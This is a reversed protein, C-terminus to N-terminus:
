SASISWDRAYIDVAPSSETIDFTSSDITIVPNARMYNKYLLSIEAATLAAPYYVIRGVVADGTITVEEFTDTNVFHRVVWNNEGSSTGPSGNTYFFDSSGFQGDFSLNTDTNLKYWIEITQPVEDPNPELGILLSGDLEIGKLNSYEFLDRPVRYTGDIDVEKDNPPWQSNSTIGYVNLNDIYSPDNTIGGEFSVRIFLRKDTPDMGPTIVSTKIGRVVETWTTGDLSCEVTAGEGDWDFYVGYISTTDSADLPFVSLWEGATSIGNLTLPVLQDLEVTVNNLSGTRWTAEDTLSLTNFRNDTRLETDVVNGGFLTHANPNFNTASTHLDTIASQDLATAFFSIDNIAVSATSSTQGSYLKADTAVYALAQQDATIVAEAVLEGNIFLSNKERNHTGFVTFKQPIQLDYSARAESGGVYKTVFSVVTGDIILGDYKGTNGLIQIEGTTPSNGIRKVVAGLTFPQSEYGQQFVPSAFSAVNTANFVSAYQAGAALSIHRTPQTTSSGVRQYGSYDTFPSNDDLQFLGLPKYLSADLTFSM